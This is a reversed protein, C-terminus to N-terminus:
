GEFVSIRFNIQGFDIRSGKLLGMGIYGEIESSTQERFAQILALVEIERLNGFIRVYGRTKMVRAPTGGGYIVSGMKDTKPWGLAIVISLPILMSGNFGSDVLFARKETLIDSRGVLEIHVLPQNLPSYTGGHEESM